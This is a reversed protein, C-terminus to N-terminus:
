QCIFLIKPEGPSGACRIILDLYDGYWVKLSESKHVPLGPNIFLYLLIFM